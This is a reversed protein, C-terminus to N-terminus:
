SKRLVDAMSEAVGANIPHASSLVLDAPKSGGYINAVSNVDAGKDVLLQTIETANLPTFQRYSEVGNAAIYHLLTARHGYQSRQTVMSPTTEITNTLYDIDGNLMSDICSEFALNFATSDHAEVAQWDTFGHEAAITQRSHEITLPFQMIHDTSKGILPKCWCALHFKVATNGDQHAQLIQQAQLTLFQGISITNKDLALTSQHLSRVSKVTEDIYIKAM